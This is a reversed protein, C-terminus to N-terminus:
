SAVVNLLSVNLMIFSVMFLSVYDLEEFHREHQTDHKEFTISLTTIGLTTAWCRIFSEVLIPVKICYVIYHHILKTWFRADFCASWFINFVFWWVWRNFKKEITMLARVFYAITNTVPWWKWSQWIILHKTNLTSDILTPNVKVLYVLSPQIHEGTM